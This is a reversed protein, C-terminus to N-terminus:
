NYTITNTVTTTMTTSNFPSVLIKANSNGTFKGHNESDLQFEM